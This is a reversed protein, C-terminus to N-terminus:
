SRGLSSDLLDIPHTSSSGLALAVALPRVYVPNYVITEFACGHATGPCIQAAEDASLLRFDKVCHAWYPHVVEPPGEGSVDVGKVFHIGTAQEGHQEWIKTLWAM